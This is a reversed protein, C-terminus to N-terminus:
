GVQHVLQNKDDLYIMFNLMTNEFTAKQLNVEPFEPYDGKIYLYTDDWVSWDLNTRKIMGMTSIMQNNIIDLERQINTEDLKIADELLIPRITTLLLGLFLLMFFGVVLLSKTKLKM